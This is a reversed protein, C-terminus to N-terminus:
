MRFEKISIEHRLAIFIEILIHEVDHAYKSHHNVHQFIMFIKKNFDVLIM